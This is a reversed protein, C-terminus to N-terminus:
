GSIAWNSVVMLRNQKTRGFSSNKNATNKKCHCLINGNIKYPINWLMKLIKSKQQFKM